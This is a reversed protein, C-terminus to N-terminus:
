IAGTINDVRHGNRESIKSLLRKFLYVYTNNKGFELSHTTQVLDNIFQKWFIWFTPEESYIWFTM